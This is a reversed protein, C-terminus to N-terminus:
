KKLFVVYSWYGGAFILLLGGIAGIIRASDRGLYRSVQGITWRNHYAEDPKYLWDWNKLSGIVLLIGLLLFALSILKGVIGSNNRIWDQIKNEDM